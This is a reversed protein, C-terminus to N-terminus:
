LGIFVPDINGWKNTQPMSREGPDMDALPLVM